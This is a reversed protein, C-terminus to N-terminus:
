ILVERLTQTPDQVQEEVDVAHHRITAKVIVGRALGHLPKVHEVSCADLM